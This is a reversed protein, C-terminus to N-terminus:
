IAEHICAQIFAHMSPYLMKINAHPNRKAWAHRSSHIHICAYANM